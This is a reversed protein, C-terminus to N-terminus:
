TPQPTLRLSPKLATGDGLRLSMDREKPSPNPASTTYAFSGAGDLGKRSDERRGTM